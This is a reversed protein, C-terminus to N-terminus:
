KNRRKVRFRQNCHSCINEGDVLTDVYIDGKCKPCAVVKRKEEPPESSRETKATNKTSSVMEDPTSPTPTKVAEQAKRVEGSKEKKQPPGTSKPTAEPRYGEEDEEFKALEGSVYDFDEDSMSLSENYQLAEPIAIYDVKGHYKEVLRAITVIDLKFFEKRPNVKNVQFKHLDKHLSNELAPADDSSIVMHVDFPFPVSADGLERVRDLPELRRTLGVKFVNEGFSGVNSIVYVFGARTLEAMSKARELKEQAENLQGRLRQVEADYEDKAKQLAKQLATQIALEQNELRQLERQREAELKQQERIQRKIRAQEEKHWQKRVAEEFSQKLEQLIENRETEPVPYGNKESFSFVKEFNKKSSAYNSATVKSAIFKVNDKILRKSLAEVRAREENLNERAAALEDTLINKQKEIADLKYEVVPLQKAKERIKILVWILFFPSVGWVLAFLVLAIRFM